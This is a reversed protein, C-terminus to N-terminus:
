GIADMDVFDVDARGIWFFKNKNLFVTSIENSSFVGRPTIKPQKQQSLPSATCHKHGTAVICLRMDQTKPGFLNLSSLFGFLNTTRTGRRKEGTDKGARNIKNRVFYQQKKKSNNNATM